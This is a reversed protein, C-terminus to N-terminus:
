PRDVAYGRDNLVARGKESVLYDLFARAAPVNGASALMVAPVAGIVNRDPPIRVLEAEGPAYSGLADWIVGADATGMKVALAVDIVTAPSVVVNKRIAAEDLGNAKFLAAQIQGIAASPDALAVKMGPRMLDKVDAIHRPNGKRVYLAPVFYCFVRPEGLTLKKAQAKAAFGVDGPIYVDGRRTTEIQGLLQGSNAYTLSVKIGTEKEFQQTIADVPTKVGAACYVFLSGAPKGAAEGASVAGAWAMAMAVATLYKMAVGGKM